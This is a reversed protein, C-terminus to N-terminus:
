KVLYKYAYDCPDRIRISLTYLALLLWLELINHLSRRSKTTRILLPVIGFKAVYQLNFIM